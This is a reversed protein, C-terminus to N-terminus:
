PCFVLGQAQRQQVGPRTVINFRLYEVIGLGSQFDM